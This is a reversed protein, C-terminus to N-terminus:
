RFCSRRLRRTLQSHDTASLFLETQTLYFVFVSHVPLCLFITPTSRVVADARNYPQRELNMLTHVTRRGGGGRRFSADAETSHFLRQHMLAITKNNFVKGVCIACKWNGDATKIVIINVGDKAFSASRATQNTDASPPADDCPMDELKM